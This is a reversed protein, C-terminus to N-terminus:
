VITLFNVSETVYLETGPGTKGVLGKQLCIAEAETLTIVGPEELYHQNVGAENCSVCALIPKAM